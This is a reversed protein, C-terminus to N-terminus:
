GLPQQPAKSDDKEEGWKGWMSLTIKSAVPLGAPMRTVSSDPHSLGPAEMEYALALEANSVGRCQPAGGVQSGLNQTLVSAAPRAALSTYNPWSQAVSMTNLTM